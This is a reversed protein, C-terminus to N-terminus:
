NEVREVEEQFMKLVEEFGETDQQQSWYEVFENYFNQWQEIEDASLEYFTTAGDDILEDLIEENATQHLNGGSESIEKGAQLLAEQIDEPLSQYKSENIAFNIVGGGASLGQTGYTVLEGLSYAKLNVPYQMLAEAIGKDFADYMDASSVQVPVADAFSMMESSIGGATRIKLGKLDEPIKVEKGATYVEYPPIMFSLIPRIGNSLYDTELLPEQQSINYYALSGASSTEYLGPLGVVANTLPMESTFYPTAIYGIDTVGDKTLNLLDAGKGLQEGPYYDFEVKGDTLETVREMFPEAFEESFPAGAAAETALKLTIKEDGNGENGQNASDGSNSGCGTAIFLIAILCSILIFHKKVSM